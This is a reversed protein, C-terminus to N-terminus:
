FDNICKGESGSYGALLQSDKNGTLETPTGKLFFSDLQNCKEACKALLKKNKEHDREAGGKRKKNM